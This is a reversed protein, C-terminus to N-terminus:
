YYYLKQQVDHLKKAAAIEEPAANEKKLTQYRLIEGIAYM